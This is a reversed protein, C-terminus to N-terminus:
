GLARVMECQRIRPDPEYPMVAGTAEFGQNVYFARAFENREVVWLRLRRAGADFAWDAVADLLRSAVGVDRHGPASWLGVVNVVGDRNAYAGVLGVVLGVVSSDDDLSVEAFFTAQSGGAANASAAETWHDDGHAQARALTTTAESPADALAELRLARLLTGDGPQIRRVRVAASM